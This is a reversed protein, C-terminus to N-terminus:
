WVQALAALVATVDRQHPQVYKQIFPYLNLLLLRHVGVVRSIVSLLCLRTEYREGSKQM